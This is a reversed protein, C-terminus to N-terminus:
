IFDKLLDELKLQMYKYRTMPTNLYLDKIHITMFKGGPTSILSSLLLRVTIMNTTPTGCNGPYNVRDSGVTLRVQNPDQKEPRYVVVIRGYTVDRWRATPLDEKEIFFLTNTGEVRGPM